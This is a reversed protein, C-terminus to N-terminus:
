QNPNQHSVICELLCYTKDLRPLVAFGAAQQIVKDLGIGAVLHSPQPERLRHIRGLSFRHKFLTKFEVGAADFELMCHVAQARFFLLSSGLRRNRRM